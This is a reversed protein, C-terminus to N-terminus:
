DGAIEMPLAFSFTSGRDPESEVWIKGGHAEVIHKSLALGLGTGKIRQGTQEARHYPEFIYPRDTAAIGIGHDRISVILWDGDELRGISKPNLAPIQRGSTVLRVLGDSISVRTVSLLIQGGYPSYKVANTLLNNLVQDLRGADGRFSPLSEQADYAIEYAPHQQGPQQTDLWLKIRDIYHRIPDNINIESLNLRLRGSEMRALDLTDDILRRLDRCQRLMIGTFEQVQESNM